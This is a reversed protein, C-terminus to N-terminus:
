IKEKQLEGRRIIVPKALEFSWPALKEEPKVLEIIYTGPDLRDLIRALSLARRSTDSDPLYTKPAAYTM